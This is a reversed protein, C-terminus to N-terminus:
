LEFRFGSQKMRMAQSRFDFNDKCTKKAESRLDLFESPTMLLIRDLANRCSLSEGDQIVVSNVGDILYRGYDGVQTTLPVVGFAMLEPLKTPFNAINTVSPERVFYLFHMRSYVLLLDEYKMWSHFILQGSLEELLWKDTKLLKAIEDKRVGTFNFRFRNRSDEPLEYIARFMSLLNEKQGPNGSYILHIKSLDNGINMNNGLDSDYLSPMLITKCGKRNFETGLMSSITIVRKTAPYLTSFCLRYLWFKPNLRGYKFQNVQFWEVVDMWVTYRNRTFLFVVLAYLANSTYVIVIDKGLRRKSFRKLANIAYFGSFFYRRIFRAYGNNFPYNEYQIGDFVYGNLNENIDQPNNIGLSFIIVEYDMLQLTKALYRVRTGGANGSPFEREALVYVRCQSDANVNLANDNQSSAMQKPVITLINKYSTFYPSM